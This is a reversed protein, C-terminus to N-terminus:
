YRVKANIIKRREKKLQKIKLRSCVKGVVFFLYYFAFASIAIIVILLIVAWVPSDGRGLYNTIKQLAGAGSEFVILVHLVVDFVVAMVTMIFNGKDRGLIVLEDRDLRYKSLGFAAMAVVMIPLVVFWANFSVSFDHYYPNM